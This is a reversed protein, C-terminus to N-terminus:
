GDEELRQRKGLFIINMIHTRGILVQGKVEFGTWVKLKGFDGDLVFNNRWIDFLMWNLLKETCFIIQYDGWMEGFILCCGIGFYLTAIEGVLVSAILWHAVYILM